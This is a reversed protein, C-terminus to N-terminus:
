AEQKSKNRLIAKAIGNEMGAVISFIIKYFLYIFLGYM